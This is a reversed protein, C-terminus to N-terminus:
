CLLLINLIPTLRLPSLRSTNTVISTMRAIPEFSYSHRELNIWIGWIPSAYLLGRDCRQEREQM